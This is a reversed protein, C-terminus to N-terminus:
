PRRVGLGLGAAVLVLGLGALSAAPEQAVTLTVTTAPEVSVLSFTAGLGEQQHIGPMARIVFIRWARDGRRVQLVAAPNRPEASRSFPQNREDLAFDSFYRELAIELDGSRTPEGPALDVSRVGDKGSVALHLLAAEGAESRPAGLRFGGLRAARDPEVRTRTRRGDGWVAELTAEGGSGVAELSLDFGFPRFGLGRGGPGEEEFVRAGRGMGLTVSGTHGRVAGYGVALIVASAGLATLVAALGRARTLLSLVLLLATAALLATPSPWRRTVVYGAPHLLLATVVAVSATFGPAALARV